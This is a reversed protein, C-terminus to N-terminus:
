ALHMRLGSTQNNTSACSVKATFCEEVEQLTLICHDQLLYNAIQQPFINDGAIRMTDFLPVATLWHIKNM